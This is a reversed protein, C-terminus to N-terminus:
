ATIIGIGIFKNGRYMVFRGLEKLVDFREVALKRDLRLEADAAGLRPVRGQRAEGTTTDIVELIRISKCKAETGNLRISISSGLSGALFLRARISGTTKPVDSAYAIISGRLGTGAERGLRLAINQGRSATRVSRGKVIIRKVTADRMQPLMRVKKGAAIRGSIVRGAILGKEKDVVGQVVIRLAAYRAAEHVASKYLLRMLTGGKYWVMNKSKKILNEGTYASIPVFDVDRKDFGIRVAFELLSDKIGEFRAESYKALDMKNVACILKEIGLMKAIFLHRKTQEKIGEGKKASVLLLAIEGYSAGSIMNKILEEHGPIDIFSFALDRYRIQARTTDYTMEEEREEAFSDLIFAPEFAKGLRKSYQRAEDIRLKTAFGTHMLMNGILTSKGHDKHGLLTINKVIM